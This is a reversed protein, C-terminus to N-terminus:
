YLIVLWLTKMFLGINLSSNTVQGAVGDKQFSVTGQPIIGILYEISNHHMYQPYTQARALLNLPHDM